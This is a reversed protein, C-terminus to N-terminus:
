KPFYRKYFSFLAARFIDSRGKNPFISQLKVMMATELRNLQISNRLLKNPDNAVAQESKVVLAALWCLKKNVESSQELLDTFPAKRKLREAIKHLTGHHNECLSVLPGDTGGANRPCIHHDERNANGRPTSTKFRAGCVWCSDRSSKM